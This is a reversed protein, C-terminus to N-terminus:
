HAEKSFESHDYGNSEFIAILDLHNFNASNELIVIEKMKFEKNKTKLLLYPSIYM